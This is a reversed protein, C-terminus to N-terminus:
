HQKKLHLSIDSIENVLGVGIVAKNPNEQLNIDMTKLSSASGASFLVNGKPDIVRSQGCYDGDIGNVLERGIRNCTVVYMANEIARARAIHLSQEGGFNAPHLLVDVGRRAYERIIEPFWIDFCIALGFTVGKHKFSVLHDGREFYQKDINTQSIKRYVHEVGTPSIVVCANFYRDGDQKPTGTVDSVGAVQSM